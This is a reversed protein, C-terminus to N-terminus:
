TLASFQTYPLFLCMTKESRSEKKKEKQGVPIKNLSLLLILALSELYM